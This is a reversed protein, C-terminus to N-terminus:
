RYASGQYGDRNCNSIGASTREGEFSKCDKSQEKFKLYDEVKGSSIFQDWYSKENM